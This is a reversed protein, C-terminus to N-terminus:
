LRKEENHQNVINNDAQIVVQRYMLKLQKYRQYKDSDSGVYREVVKFTSSCINEYEETIGREKVEGIIAQILNLKLGIYRPYKKQAKLFYNISQSFDGSSYFDIGKKNISGILKKGKESVPEELLPDIKELALQDHQYFVLMEQLAEKAKVFNGSAMLANAAEIENIVNREPSDDILQKAETFLEDSIRKNGNMANIQSHLLKAQIKQEENINYQNDIGNLLKIADLSAIQAKDIDNDYIKTIARALNLHNDVTDYHSNAGYKITKKYAKMAIEIDGNALATDALNKQRGISMPSIAAAQELTLQLKESDGLTTYAKSLCDYAKLYAPYDQVIYDLANVADDLKGRELDVNALGVQAWDLDRAELVKIYLLEADDYRQEQIYLEGLLKQCDVTYRSQKLLAEELLRIARSNNNDDIAQYINVLETRKAMQRKIRQELTKGTIPKSLYDSPECDYSAMVVDRSTDASILMFIDSRKVMKRFRMEELFQQGTKGSGLNYDSLIVDYHNKRCLNIAENGSSVSNISRFGLAYMNKALTTRFNHFDDVILVSLNAYDPSSM